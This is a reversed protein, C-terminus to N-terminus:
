PSGVGRQDQILLKRISVFRVMTLLFVRSKSPM